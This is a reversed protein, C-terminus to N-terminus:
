HEATHDSDGVSDDSTETVQTIENRKFLKNLGSIRLKLIPRIKHHLNISKDILAGESFVGDFIDCAAVSITTTLIAFAFNLDVNWRIYAQTGILIMLYLLLLQIIRVTLPGVPSRNLRINLWATFFCLIGAILYTEPQTLRRTFDGSLITATTHAQILLGPTFNSLPTQHMDAGDHIKGVLVIKGEVAEPNDLIEEPYLIEFDRSCFSIAEDANHRSALAQKSEPRLISALVAPLSMLTDKGSTPFFSKFERVTAWTDKDGQINVAGFGSSPSIASDYWSIHEVTYAGNGDEQAEVPMVLNQCTALADILPDALTDSPPSFVIDIGIAAPECFDIDTLARAIEARRCGDVAVIVIDPDLQRVSRDNAVLTYFDSFRFDSDKEMPSFFSVSSLDYVAVHSFLLAFLTVMLAKPVPSLTRLMHLVSKM